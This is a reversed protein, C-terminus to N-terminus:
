PRTEAVRTGGPLTIPRIPPGAPIPPATLPGKGPYVFMAHATANRTNGGVTVSAHGYVFGVQGERFTVEAVLERRVGAPTAGFQLLTPGSVVTGGRVDLRLELAQVDRTPAGTLTFRSRGEGLATERLIPSVAAVPKGMPREEPPPQGPQACASLTVFVLGLGTLLFKMLQCRRESDAATEM